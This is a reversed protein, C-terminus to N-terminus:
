FSTDGLHGFGDGTQASGPMGADKQDWRQDGAPSLGTGPKGAIIQTMGADVDNGLDEGPVGVALSSIGTGSFDGTALKQGFRDDAQSAGRIGATDQSWTDDGAGTLGNGSGYLVAVSGANDLGTVQKGPTGIALDQNGDSDFDGAALASGFLDGAASSGSVGGAGQRFLENNSSSLGAGSGYLVNVGGAAAGGVQDGPVGIALDLNDDGDFDGSTLAAGFREDAARAGQIGTSKQSFRAQDATALGSGTGYLVSVAGSDSGSASDEGPIGIALDARGDDDFDGAAVSSGFGDGAEAQGSVGAKDEHFPASTGDFGAASGYLVSIMGAGPEGSIKKGPVGVAVDAFGDGDFDGVALSEGFRDGVKAVGAVGRRDLHWRNSGSAVLGNSSGLVLNVSGADANGGNADGPVGVILDDFGDSNIDGCGTAYGFEEDSNTQGDVGPTGQTLLQARATGLGDTSGYLVTVAGADTKTNGSLDEGPIGIALDDHGDDDFDCGRTNGPSLPANLVTAAQLSPYPNIVIGGPKHLEFHLHPSSAEANGSDGVWGILQGREIRAGPVVGPAFGWGQGDDTGPTDNNMHIYWSEWGDDHNIEFACCDGGQDNHMWGVYGSAVALMPTMKPKLIDIGHHTRPCGAGGRCDGFNDSYTAGGQIPFIMDYVVVELEVGNPSATAVVSESAPEEGAGPEEHHAQAAPLGALLLAGVFLTILSTRNGIQM